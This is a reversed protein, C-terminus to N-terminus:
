WQLSGLCLVDELGGLRTPGEEILVVHEGRPVWLERVGGSEAYGGCGKSRAVRPSCRLWWLQPSTQWQGKAGNVGSMWEDAMAKKEGDAGSSMPRECGRPEQGWTATVVSPGHGAVGRASVIETTSTTDARSEAPPM